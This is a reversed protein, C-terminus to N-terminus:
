LVEGGVMWPALPMPMYDAQVKLGVVHAGLNETAMLQYFAVPWVPCGGLVRLHVGTM